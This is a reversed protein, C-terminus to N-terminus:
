FILSKRVKCYHIQRTRWAKRPNHSLLHDEPGGWSFLYTIYIYIFIIIYYLLNDITYLVLNSPHLRPKWEISHYQHHNVESLLRHFRTFTRYPFKRRRCQKRTGVQSRGEVGWSKCALSSAGRTALCSCTPVDAAEFSAPKEKITNSNSIIYPFTTTKVHTSCKGLQHFTFSGKSIKVGDQITRGPKVAAPRLARPKNFFPLRTRLRLNLVKFMDFRFAIDVCGYITTVGIALMAAYGYAM